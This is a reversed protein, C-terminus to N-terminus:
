AATKRKNAPRTDKWRRHVWWYQEPDRRIIRELVHTYWQTIEPVGRESAPLQRPDAAPTPLGFAIVITIIPVPNKTAVFAPIRDIAVGVLWPGALVALNFVLISIAITVVTRRHPRLLDALLARSRRRLLLSVGKPLEDIDEAAIGRWDQTVVQTM